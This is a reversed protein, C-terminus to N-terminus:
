VPWLKQQWFKEKWPDLIQLYITIITLIMTAGGGGFNSRDNSFGNYGNGSGGYKGGGCSGGFDGGPRIHTSNCPLKKVTPLSNSM